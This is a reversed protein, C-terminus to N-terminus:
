QNPLLEFMLEEDNADLLLREIIVERVMLQNLLIEPFCYVTKSLSRDPMSTIIIAGAQSPNQNTILYLVQQETTDLSPLLIRIMSYILRQHYSKESNNLLSRVQLSFHDIMVIHLIDVM